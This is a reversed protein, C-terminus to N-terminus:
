AHHMWWYLGAAVIVLALLALSTYAEKPVTVSKEGTRRIQATNKISLTAQKSRGRNEQRGISRRYHEIPRADIRDPGGGGGGGGGGLGSSRGM